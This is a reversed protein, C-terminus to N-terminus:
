PTVVIGKGKPHKISVSVPDSPPVNAQLGCFVVDSYTAKAVVVLTPDQPHPLAATVVSGKIRSSVENGNLTIKPAVQKWLKPSGGLLPVSVIVGGKGDASVTATGFHPMAWTEAPKGAATAELADGPDADPDTSGRLVAHNVEALRGDDMLQAGRLGGNPLILRFQLYLEDDAGLALDKFTAEIALSPDFEFTVPQAGEVEPPAPVSVTIRGKDDPSGVTLTKSPKRAAMSTAVQAAADALKAKDHGQITVSLGSPDLASLRMSFRYANRINQVADRLDLAIRGSGAGSYEAYTFNPSVLTGPSRAGTIFGGQITLGKYLTSVPAAQDLEVPCVYKSLKCTDDKKTWTVLAVCGRIKKPCNDKFTVTWTYNTGKNRPPPVCGDDVDLEPKKGTVEVVGANEPSEGHVGLKWTGWVPLGVPLTVLGNGHHTVSGLVVESPGPGTPTLV